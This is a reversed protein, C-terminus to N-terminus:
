LRYEERFITLTIFDSSILYAPCTARILALRSAQLSSVVQSVQAYMCIYYSFKDYIFLTHLQLSSENPEFYSGPALMESWQSSTEFKMLPPFKENQNAIFIRYCM